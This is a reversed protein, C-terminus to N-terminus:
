LAAVGIKDADEVTDLISQIGGPRPVNKETAALATPAGSAKLVVVDRRCLTARRRNSIATPRLPGLTYGRRVRRQDIRRGRAAWRAVDTKIQQSDYEVPALQLSAGKLSM